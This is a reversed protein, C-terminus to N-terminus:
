VPAVGPAGIFGVTSGTVPDRRTGHIEVMGDASGPLRALEDLVANTGFFRHGVVPGELGHGWTVCPTGDVLLQHSADLVYNYVWGAPNPVTAALEVPLDRPYVWSGNLMAPHKDTLTAGGPLQRLPGGRRIKAALQVTAWGSVVRVKDGPGVEAVGVRRTANATGLVEVTSSPGFCGNSAGPTYTVWHVIEAVQGVVKEYDGIGCGGLQM